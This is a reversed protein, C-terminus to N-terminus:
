YVMEGRVPEPRRVDKPHEFFSEADSVEVIKGDGPRCWATPWGAAQFVNHTVLVITTGEETNLRRVAEEIVMVNYPDLNAMPEDLLLVFPKIVM